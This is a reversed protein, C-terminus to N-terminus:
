QVLQEPRDYPLPRLLVGYVVSFIATTASIGLALTFVAILTFSPNRRLVRIGYRLDQLLTRTWNTGWMSHTVEKILTVNGMERRVAYYAEDPTAGREVRDREAMRLPSGTKEDLDQERKQRDNFSM